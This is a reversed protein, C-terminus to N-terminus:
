EAQAEVMSFTSESQALKLDGCHKQCKGQAYSPADCGEVSCKEAHLPSGQAFLGTKKRTLAKSSPRSLLCSAMRELRGM